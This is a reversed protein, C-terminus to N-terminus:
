LYKDVLNHLKEAIDRAIFRPDLDTGSALTVYPASDGDVSLYLRNTTAGIDFSDGASTDARSFGRTGKCSQGNGETAEGAASVDFEVWRTAASM